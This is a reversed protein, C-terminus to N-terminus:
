NQDKVKNGKISMTTLSSNSIKQREIQHDIRIQVENGELSKSTLKSKLAENRKIVQLDTKINSNTGM